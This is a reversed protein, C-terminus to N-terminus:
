FIVEFSLGGFSVDSADLQFSTGFFPTFSVQDSLAYTFAVRAYFDNL